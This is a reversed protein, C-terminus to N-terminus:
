DGAVFFIMSWRDGRKVFMARWSVPSYVDVGRMWGTTGGPLEVQAWTSDAAVGSEGLGHWAKIPLISHSASGRAPTDGGPSEHIRADARIVAVFEFADISDPWFAHVYPATFTSDTAQQGGMNLVRTLATWVQSNAPEDMNWVRRFGAIGDDDGFTNRIEPALMGFLYTTDRRALAELTRARFERFSPSAEDRPELEPAGGDLAAVPTASDATASDSPVTSDGQSCAQGAILGPCFILVAIVRRLADVM